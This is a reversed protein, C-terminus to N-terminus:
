LPPPNNALGERQGQIYFTTAVNRIGEQDNDFGHAAAVNNARVYCHQYFLQMDDMKRSFGAKPTPAKTPYGCGTIADALIPDIAPVAPGDVVQWKARDGIQIVARQGYDPKRKIGKGPAFRIRRGIMKPLTTEGWISGEAKLSGDVLFCTFARASPNQPAAELTAEFGGEFYSDPPADIVDKLTKM